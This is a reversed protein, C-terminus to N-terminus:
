TRVDVLPQFTDATPTTKKAPMGHRTTFQREGLGETWAELQAMHQNLVNLTGADQSWFIVQAQHNQWTLDACLPALPKLELFLRFRWLRSVGRKDDEEKRERKERWWELNAWASVGLWILPISLQQVAPLDPQTLASLSQQIANNHVKAQVGELFQRLQLLPEQSEARAQVTAQQVQAQPSQLPPALPRSAESANLLQQARLSLAEQLTAPQQRVQQDIQALWQGLRIEIPVPAPEVPRSAAQSAGAPSSLHQWLPDAAPGTSQSLATVPPQAPAGPSDQAPASAQPANPPPAAPSLSLIQLPQATTNPLATANSPGTGTMQPWPLLPARPWGPPLAPVAVPPAAGSHPTAGGPAVPSSAKPATTPQPSPPLVGATPAPMAGATAGTVAQGGSAPANPVNGPIADALPATSAANQGLPQFSTMWRMLNTSDAPARQNLWQVLPALTPYQQAVANLVTPSPLPPLQTPHVKPLTHAQWFGLSAQMMQQLQVENPRSLVLLQNGQGAELMLVTGPKFSQETRAQLWQDNVKLLVDFLPKQATGLVTQEVVVALVPSQQRVQALVQAQAVPMGSVGRHVERTALTSDVPRRIADGREIM